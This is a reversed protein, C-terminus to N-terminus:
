DNQAEDILKEKILTHSINRAWAGLDIFDYDPNWSPHEEGVDNRGEKQKENWAMISPCKEFNVLLLKRIEDCTFDAFGWKDWTIESDLWGYLQIVAPHLTGPCTYPSQRIAWMAFAGLINDLSYHHKRDDRWPPYTITKSEPIGTVSAKM